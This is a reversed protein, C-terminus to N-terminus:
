REVCIEAHPSFEPAKRCKSTQGDIWMYGQEDKHVNFEAIKFLQSFMVYVFFMVCLLILGFEGM